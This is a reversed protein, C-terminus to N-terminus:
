QAYTGRVQDLLKIQNSKLNAELGIAQTNGFDSELEVADKTQAIDTKFNVDISETLLRFPMKDGTKNNPPTTSTKWIVVNQKLQFSDGDGEISGKDGKAHWLAVGEPSFTSILPKEMLTNESEPYHVLRASQLTRSLNGEPNFEKFASNVTYYDPELHQEPLDSFLDIPQPRQSDLVQVVIAVASLGILSLFRKKLRRGFLM